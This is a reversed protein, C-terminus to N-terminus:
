CLVALLGETQVMNERGLLSIGARGMAHILTGAIRAVHRRPYVRESMVHRVSVLIMSGSRVPLDPSVISSHCSGDMALTYICLLSVLLLLGAQFKASRRVSTWSGDSRRVNM